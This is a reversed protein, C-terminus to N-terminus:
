ALVRCDEIVVRQGPQGSCDVAVNQLKDVIDLGQVVCRGCTSDVHVVPLLRQTLLGVAAAAAV